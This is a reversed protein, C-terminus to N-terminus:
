KFLRGYLKKEKEKTQQIEQKVKNLLSQVAGNGPEVSLAETLDKKAAELDHSGQHAQARRYLGKVSKPDLEVAKDCNEIAEKWQKEKLAVAALNLYSPLQLNKKMDDITEQDFDGLEDCIETVRAYRRKALNFRSQQFLKNGEDKLKKAVEVRAQTETATKVPDQQVDVVEIELELVRKKDDSSKNLKDVADLFKASQKLYQRDAPITLTSDGAKVRFRSSEGKVMTKTAFDVADVVEEDGITFEVGDQSEIEEEVTGQKDKPGSFSVIRASYNIKVKDEEDATEENKDGQKLLKKLLSKNRKDSIDLEDEWDLLEVEFILTSYAPISGADRAGYGYEPKITLVAKENRKMTAVGVDWGKIVEGKGLTFTFPEDRDRSSDFKTGNTLTGVYHVNVKAGNPPLLDGEGPTLIEKLVAGDGTLDQSM